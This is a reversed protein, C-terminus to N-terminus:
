GRPCYKKGKREPEERALVVRGGSVDEAVGM